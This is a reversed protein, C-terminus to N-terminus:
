TIRLMKPLMELGGKSLKNQVKYWFLITWAQKWTEKESSKHTRIQINPIKLGLM